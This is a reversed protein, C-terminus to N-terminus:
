RSNETRNRNGEDTRWTGGVEKSRLLKGQLLLAMKKGVGNKKSTEDM